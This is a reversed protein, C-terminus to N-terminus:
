SIRNRAKRIYNMLDAGNKWPVVSGEDFDFGLKVGAVDYGDLIM